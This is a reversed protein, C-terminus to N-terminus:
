STSSHNRWLYLAPQIFIGALLAKILFVLFIGLFWLLLLQVALCWIMPLQAQPEKHLGFSGRSFEQSCYQIVAKRGGYNKHADLMVKSCLYLMTHFMVEFTLSSSIKAVSAEATLLCCFFFIEPWMFAVQLRPVWVVEFKGKIM